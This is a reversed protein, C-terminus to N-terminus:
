GTSLTVSSGSLTASQTLFQAGVSTEMALWRNMNTAFSGAFGKASRLESTDVGGYSFGGSVEYRALEQASCFSSVVLLLVTLKLTKMNKRPSLARLRKLL